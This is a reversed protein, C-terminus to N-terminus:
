VNISRVLPPARSQFNSPTDFYDLSVFKAPLFIGGTTLAPTTVEPTLAFSELVIGTPCLEWAIHDDLTANGHGSLHEAFQEGHNEFIRGSLGSPCPKFPGGEDLPAPMYGAPILVRCALGLYVAWILARRTRNLKKTKM